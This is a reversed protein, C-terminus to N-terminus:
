QKAGAGKRNHAEVTGTKPPTLGRKYDGVSTPSWAPVTNSGLGNGKSKGEM